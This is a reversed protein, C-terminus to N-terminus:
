RQLKGMSQVINEAGVRGVTTIRQATPVKPEFNEDHQVDEFIEISPDPRKKSSKAVKVGNVMKTQSKLGGINTQEVNAGIRSIAVRGVGTKKAVRFKLTQLAARIGGGELESQAEGASIPNSVPCDDLEGARIARAIRYKLQTLAEELVDRPSALNKIGLKILDEARQMNKRIEYQWSWNLYLGALLTCISNSYMFGFVEIPEDCFRKFKMFIDFLRKDQKFEKQNYYLEICNEIATTLENVKGGAPVNQELWDIYECWIDLLKGNDDKHEEITKDFQVKREQVLVSLKDKRDILPLSNLLAGIKRGQHLPQINEKYIDWEEVQTCTHSVPPPQDVNGDDPDKIIIFKASKKEDIRPMQGVQRRSNM